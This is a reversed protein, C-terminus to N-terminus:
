IGLIWELIIKGDVGLNKSNNKGEPKGVLIKYKEDKGHTSCAGGMEDKV